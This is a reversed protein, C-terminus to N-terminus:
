KPRRLERVFGGIAVVVCAGVFLWALLSDLLQDEM